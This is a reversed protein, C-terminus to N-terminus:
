ILAACVAQGPATHLATHQLQKLGPAEHILSSRDHDRPSHAPTDATLGLFPGEPPSTVKKIASGSLLRFGTVLCGGELLLAEALQPDSPQLTKM